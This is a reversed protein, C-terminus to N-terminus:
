ALPDFTNVASQGVAQGCSGQLYTVRLLVSGDAGHQHYELCRIRQNLSSISESNWHSAQRLSRLELRLREFKEHVSCSDWPQTSPENRLKENEADAPLSLEQYHYRKDETM